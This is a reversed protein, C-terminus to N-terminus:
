AAIAFSRRRRPLIIGGGGAVTPAAAKYPHSAPLSGQVNNNWALYGELKQRDSLSLTGNFYVYEAHDGVWYGGKYAGNSAIGLNRVTNIGNRTATNPGVVGNVAISATGNGNSYGGVIAPVGVPLPMTAPYGQTYFTSITSPDSSEHYLLITNQGGYDQNGSGGGFTDGTSTIRAGSTQQQASTMLAAFCGIEGAPFNVGGFWGAGYYIGDTYISAVGTGFGNPRYLMNAPNNNTFRPLDNGLGSRDKWDKPNTGDFCDAGQPIVGAPDRMRYNALLVVSTLNAPTWLAM